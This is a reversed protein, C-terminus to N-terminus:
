LVLCGVVVYVEVMRLNSEREKEREWRTMRVILRRDEKVERTVTLTQDSRRSQGKWWSTMGGTGPFGEWPMPPELKSTKDIEELETEFLSPILSGKFRSFPLSNGGEVFSGM